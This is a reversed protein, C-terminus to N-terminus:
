DNKTIEAESAWEIERTITGNKIKLFTSYSTKSLNESGNVKSYTLIEFVTNENFLNKTSVLPKFSALAKLINFHAIGHDVPPIM